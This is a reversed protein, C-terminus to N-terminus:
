FDLSPHTQIVVLGTNEAGIDGARTCPLGWTSSNANGFDKFLQLKVRALATIRHIDAILTGKAPKRATQL